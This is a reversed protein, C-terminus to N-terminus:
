WYNGAPQSPYLPSSPLSLASFFCYKVNNLEFCKVDLAFPILDILPVAKMTDWNKPTQIFIRFGM